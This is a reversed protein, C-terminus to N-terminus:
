KKEKQGCKAAFNELFRIARKRGNGKTERGFLKSFMFKIKKVKRGNGEREKTIFTELVCCLFLKKM